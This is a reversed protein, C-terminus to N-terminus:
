LGYGQKTAPACRRWWASRLQYKLKEAEQLPMAPNHLSIETKTRQLCLIVIVVAVDVLAVWVEHSRM